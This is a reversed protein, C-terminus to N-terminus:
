FIQSDIKNISNKIFTIKKKLKEDEEALKILINEKKIIFSYIEAMDESPITKSYETIFGDTKKYGDLGISDSCISCGAYQFSKDNFDRWVNEDFLNPNSDYIMHFVEHHIVREFYKPNFNIDLILTRKQKDPIGATGIGSISLNECLVVFKINNKKLFEYNYIDLNKKIIEYKKKLNNENAKDCTINKTVAITFNRKSSLYKIKNKSELNFVELNPIKILNFIENANISQFSMLLLIIIIAKKM